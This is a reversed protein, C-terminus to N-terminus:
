CGTKQCTLPDKGQHIVWCRPLTDWDYKQPLQLQWQVSWTVANESLAWHLLCFAHGWGKLASTWLGLAHKNTGWGGKRDIKRFSSLLHTFLTFSNQEPPDQDDLASHFSPRGRPELRELIGLYEVPYEWTNLQCRFHFGGSVTVARWSFLLRIKDMRPASKTLCCTRESHLQTFKINWTHLTGSSRCSGRAECATLSQWAWWTPTRLLRKAM